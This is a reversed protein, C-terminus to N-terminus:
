AGLARLLRFPAASLGRADSATQEGRVVRQFVRWSLPARALWFATRPFRDFARKARWSLAESPAFATAFTDAYLSVDGSLVADAALRGSLFAEYMGDGSLPDVLGAADGVLAVRGSVPRGDGGRM